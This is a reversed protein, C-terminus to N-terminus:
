SRIRERKKWSITNRLYVPQAQEASCAEGREYAALAQEAMDAAGPYFAPELGAPALAQLQSYQWGQGIGWFNGALAAVASHEVVSEPPAVAEQALSVLAGATEGPRVLSWYVEQMRADLAVLLPTDSELLEPHQRYFGVAMSDLTSVGVVPLDRAFALGQVVGLCIRLGTFSGPGQGFALADVESLSLGAETLIEDVMPLLRRTHSRAALEFRQRIRDAGQRRSDLLAVSCADTASDLILLRTM